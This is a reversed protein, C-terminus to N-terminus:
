ESAALHALIGSEEMQEWVGPFKEDFLAKDSEILGLEVANNEDTGIYAATLRVAEALEAEPLEINIAPNLDLVENLANAIGQLKALTAGEETQPELPPNEDGETTEPEATPPEAPTAKKGGRKSTKATSTRAATEEQELPGYWEVKHDAHLAIRNRLPWEMVVEPTLIADKIFVMGGGKFPRLVRGGYEGHYQSM